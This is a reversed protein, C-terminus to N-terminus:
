KKKKLEMRERIKKKTKPSTFSGKRKYRKKKTKDLTTNSEAPVKEPRPEDPLIIIVHKTEMADQDPYEYTNCEQCTRKYKEGPCILGKESMVSENDVWLDLNEPNTIEDTEEPNTEESVMDEPYLEEPYVNDPETTEHFLNQLTDEHHSM